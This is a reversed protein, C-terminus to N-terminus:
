VLESNYVNSFFSYFYFFFIYLKDIFWLHYQFQLEPVSFINRTRNTKTPEKLSIVWFRRYFLGSRYAGVHQWPLWRWEKRKLELIKRWVQLLSAWWYLKAGDSLYSCNEWKLIDSVCEWRGFSQCQIWFQTLQKKDGLWFELYDKDHRQHILEQKREERKQIKEKAILCSIILKVFVFETAYNISSPKLDPM